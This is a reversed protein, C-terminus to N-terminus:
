YIIEGLKTKTNGQKGRKKWKVDTPFSEKSLIFNKDSKEACNYVKSSSPAWAYLKLHTGAEGKDYDIYRYSKRNKLRLNELTKVAFEMAVDIDRPTCNVMQEKLSVARINKGVFPNLSWKNSNCDFTYGLDHLNHFASYYAFFWFRDPSHNINAPYVYKSCTKYQEHYKKFNKIFRRHFPKVKSIQSGFTQNLKIAKERIEKKDKAVIEDSSIYSLDSWLYDYLKYCSKRMKALRNITFITANREMFALAQGATVEAGMRYGPYFKDSVKNAGYANEIFATVYNWDEIEKLDNLNKVANYKKNGNQVAVLVLKSLWNEKKLCAGYPCTQEIFAGVVKVDFFHTRHYNKFYDTGGFVIIKQALNLQDLVRPVVGISFPPRKIEGTYKQTSDSLKCFKRNVYLQGSLLDLDYGYPDEAPTTIIVNLTNKTTNIAPDVDWFRHPLIEKNNDVLKYRNVTDFWRARVLSVFADAYEKTGYVNSNGSSVQNNRKTASCSLFLNVLILILLMRM